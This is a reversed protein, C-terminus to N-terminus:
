FANSFFHSGAKKEEMEFMEPASFQEKVHIVFTISTFRWLEARSPDVLSGNQGKSKGGDKKLGGQHKEETEDERKTM